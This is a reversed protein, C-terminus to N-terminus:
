PNEVAAAAREAAGGRSGATDVLGEAIATKFVDHLVDRPAPRDDEALRWQRPTRGPDAAWGALSRGPRDKPLM